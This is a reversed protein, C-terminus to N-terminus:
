LTALKEKQFREKFQCKQCLKEVARSGSFGNYIAEARKSTIIEKFSQFYINGLSIIGEGDLCCPVVTGDVLIAVQDRLGLCFGHVNETVCQIEPWTFKRECHLFLKNAIRISSGPQLNEWKPFKLHLKEAIIQIIDNNQQDDEENNLNWLRLSIFIKTRELAEKVFAALHDAYEKKYNESQENYSHLSVNIQRVAESTILTQSVQKLLTGNTTINVNIGNSKCILLLQDLEPHLLPEGKVHLYIYSTYPKIQDLISSFSEVKMLEVKRNSKACFSCHLNCANTVEIYVKKFKNMNLYCFHM